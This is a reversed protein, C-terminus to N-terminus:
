IYIYTSAVEEWHRHRETGAVQKVEAVQSVSCRVWPQAEALGACHCTHHTGALFGARGVFAAPLTIM